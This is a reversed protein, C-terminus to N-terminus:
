VISIHPLVFIDSFSRFMVCMYKSVHLVALSM